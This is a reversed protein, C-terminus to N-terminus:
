AICPTSHWVPLEVRHMSLSDWLSVAVATAKYKRYVIKTVLYLVTATSRLRSLRDRRNVVATSLNRPRPSVYTCDSCAAAAASFAPLSPPPPVTTIPAPTCRMSAAAVKRTGNSSLPAEPSSSESAGTSRAPDPTREHQNRRPRNRKFLKVNHGSPEMRVKTSRDQTCRFLHSTRLTRATVHM